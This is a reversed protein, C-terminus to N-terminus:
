KERTALKKSLPIRSGELLASDIAIAVAERMVREEDLSVAVSRNGELHAMRLASRAKIEGIHGRDADKKQGMLLLEDGDLFPSEEPVALKGSALQSAPCDDDKPMPLSIDSRVGGNAPSHGLPSYFISTTLKVVGTQSKGSFGIPFIEDELHFLKQVSGKGYTHESGVIVARQNDKLAGALVESASATGEDVLVVLSGNYMPRTLTDRLLRRSDHEVVGVVPREGLFVGAMSVAEELFGGPNGRLDLVISSTKKKMSLIEGLTKKLDESSSNEEQDPDMGGRGYFSPIDIVAVQTKKDPSPILKSTIRAEEFNFHRRELSVRRKSGGVKILGLNVVSKEPGRLLAKAENAYLSRLLKGDVSEIIDGVAIRGSREAASDPLIKEVLLGHPVMHVKVGLGSSGGSLDYYFDEFEPPSFYTSFPDMANLLSKALLHSAHVPEDFLQQAFSDKLYHRKDGQYAAVVVPTAVRALEEAWQGMRTELEEENRAFSKFHPMGAKLMESNGSEGWARIKGIALGDVRSFFRARAMSFHSNLWAEFFGCNGKELLVPWNKAADGYFEEAQEQTFLLRYPDAKELFLRVAHAAFEKSHFDVSHTGGYHLQSWAGM